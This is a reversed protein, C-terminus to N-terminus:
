RGGREDQGLNRKWEQENLLEAMNRRKGEHLVDVKGGWECSTFRDDPQSNYLCRNCKWIFVEKGQIFTDADNGCCCKQQPIPNGNQDCLTVKVNM